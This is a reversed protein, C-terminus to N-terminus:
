LRGTRSLLMEFHGARGSAVAEALTGRVLVRLQNTAPDHDVEVCEGPMFLGADAILRLMDAGFDGDRRMILYTAPAMRAFDALRERCAATELHQLVLSAFVLDYRALRVADWDASLADVGVASLAGCREIM